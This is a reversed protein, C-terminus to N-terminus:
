KSMPLVTIRGEAASVAQVERDYMAEGFISPILYSGVNTAKIQYIFSQVSTGAHGYIIVRDERIDSYDPQWNSGKFAVPSRWVAGSDVSDDDNNSQDEPIQQVVEFGGPLLDVIAVNGVGQKSNSRIKIVVNIKQGLTVKDIPKGQEDTYERVIELGRKVSQTPPLQDYGSQVVSYWAPISTPNNFIIQKDDANFKGNIILGNAKSILRLAETKAEITLSKGENGAQTALNQLQSAYSDIALISMASSLTTNRNERIMLVINELAQAPILNVKEPFHRSILYIATSNMVLPDYYDHTWWAKDYAKALRKLPYSILEDAQKDMKLLKYASGLYLVTDMDDKWGDGFRSQLREHVTALLNTTVEGQRTLLYVAYARLKLGYSDYVNNNAAFAKLYKNTNNLLDAPIIVGNEKAEILYHATYVTVFNDGTATARWLGIAGYSNQRSRLVTFLTELPDNEVQQNSKTILEPYKSQILNPIARSVLQESCYYPYNTLYEALGNTLVIPSHSVKADRKSYANFMDRLEGVIHQNGDMRGMTTITRYPMAPRVSTSGMRQATGEINNGKDEYRAKFILEAGGLRETAKLNFRVMGERKEALSLTQITGGVIELQGTTTLEVSVPVQAGNLDTLNNSVGLTVEFEDGPAVMYPVNPTLVLDDRVTTYTQATGIRDATVSVAMIRLKGNFYDPVTYNVTKTGNVDIIGSWYTVPAERKRKFPNLHRDLEEAADGGPAATLAMLKSFEPLILDLIQSSGVALERKRFFYNLPDALRYRAVQLIGEDIAFVVVKQPSNTTVNIPLSDGPKITKNAQIEISARQKNLNVKFPLVGYSLPSMFIEDSNPDRVFQVNIYANGELGEPITIKQVSSTTDTKFWEWEYVKDREITILGSGVYPANISIEIEEGPAYEDKSLKLKLETNRELSRTVNANGAITYYTRYLMHDSEDRIVLEYDGPTATAISFTTGAAAISFPQESILQQKLKSQYKYVGSPQLTLVSLYKREYIQVTLGEINQKELAPNIAILDLNRVSNKQIYGLSGDAKAGVLYDNPSILAQATAAVSRGGGAEFVETLLFLQYSAGQMENLLLPLQATGDEDTTQSALEIEFRESSAYEDYFQYDAYQSFYFNMPRLKLSSEVKRDQAPTGFLNEVKVIAKVDEPKVWGQKVEPTLKIEVKMRDPEFEKVTVTTSGIFIREKTETGAIYLYIPWTGTPSSEETTFSFEAFGSQDMELLTTESLQDRPDYVELELPIGAVSIGWDAARVIIGLNATDGPRYLGRDSFIYGSLAGPDLSNEIGGTDFRSFDLYRDYSSGSIPLFSLDGDKEVLYLAPSREKNLGNFNKFHIHGYGDTEGTMVAVGNKGLVSVTAGSVPTGDKISQVFLDNSGDLSRKAIIGLDTVIILRSDNYESDEDEDYYEEECYEDCEDDGQEAKPTWSSLKVLFVGRRGQGENILYDSLDIGEYVLAGPETEPLAKQYTFHETFHEDSLRSFAMNAFEGRRNLTILHQLQSPIVRKIDLQIGPLNRAVVPLKREGKMSLIAGQSMFSLMRPYDPVAYVGSYRGSPKYGGVSTYDTGVDIYIYQGPIAKFKFGMIAQTDGDVDSLTLKLPTSLKLLISNIDDKSTWHYNEVAKEYLTEPRSAPLIWAKIQKSFENVNVQDQTQVLLVQQQQNNDTEALTISVNSILPRYVGPVSVTRNSKKQTGKGGLASKVGPNIVLDMVSQENPLSVPESRIWADLKKDNYKVSFNFKKDLVKISGPSEPTKLMVSLQKEFSATDVPHSFRVQYIANKQLPEQPNQYFESSVFQYSFDDTTFTYETQNIRSQPALLVDPDIKVTYKQGIAWDQIPTFTLSAQSSWKWSGEVSPSLRIGQDVIKDIQEIPAVSGNFTLLLNNPKPSNAQYNTPRPAYIRATYDSYVIPAIEIPKPKNLQWHYAYFGAGGFLCLLIITVSLGKVHSLVWAEFHLFGKGVLGAWKPAQWNIQGLVPGLIKIILSFLWCLLQYCGRVLLFPLRFLFRLFGM